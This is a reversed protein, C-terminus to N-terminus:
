HSYMGSNGISLRNVEGKKRKRTYWQHVLLMNLNVYKGCRAELSRCAIMTAMIKKSM